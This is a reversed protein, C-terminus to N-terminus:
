VFTLTRVCRNYVVRDQQMVNVSSELDVPYICPLSSYQGSREGELTATVIDVGWHEM